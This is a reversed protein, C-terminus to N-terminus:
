GQFQARGAGAQEMELGFLCVHDFAWLSVNAM